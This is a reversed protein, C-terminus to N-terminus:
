SADDVEHRKQWFSIEYAVLDDRDEPEHVSVTCPRDPFQWKLKAEHIETLVSALLVIKDKTLDKCGWHQIDAIHLHNMVREVSLRNGQCQEEFGRLSELSFGERLVYGEFEVFGPWFIASYGVALAFSGECGIWSELDIGKGDNWAALEAKMSDPIKM